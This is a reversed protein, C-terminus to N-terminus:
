HDGAAIGGTLVILPAEGLQDSAKRGAAAANDRANDYATVARERASPARTPKPQRTTM